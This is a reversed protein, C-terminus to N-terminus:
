ISNKMNKVKNLVVELSRYIQNTLCNYIEEFSSDNKLGLLKIVEEFMGRGVLHDAWTRLDYLYFFPAIMNSNDSLMEKFFVELIKLSGWNSDFIIQNSKLYYVLERRNITEIFRVNLDSVIIKFDKENNFIIRNKYESCMKLLDDVLILDFNFMKFGFKKKFEINIKNLLLFLEVELINETFLGEVQGTKFDSEIDWDSNINYPKLIMKLKDPLRRLDGLWFILHKKSNIGFPISDEEFILVGYTESMFECNYNQSYIFPVLAEKEFYVPTLYNDKQPSYDEESRYIFETLM